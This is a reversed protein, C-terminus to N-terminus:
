CKNPEITLVLSEQFTDSDRAQKEAHYFMIHYMRLHTIERKLALLSEKAESMLDVGQEDDVAAVKAPKGPLTTAKAATANSKAKKSPSDYLPNDMVMLRTNNIVMLGDVLNGCRKVSLAPNNSCAIFERKLKLTKKHTDLESEVLKVTSFDLYNSAMEYHVLEYREGYADLKVRRVLDGLAAADANFQMNFHAKIVFYQNAGHKEGIHQSADGVVSLPVGGAAPAQYLAMHCLALTHLQRSNFAESLSYLGETDFDSRHQEALRDELTRVKQATSQTTTTNWPVLVAVVVIIILLLLFCLAIFWAGYTYGYITRRDQKTLIEDDDNNPM